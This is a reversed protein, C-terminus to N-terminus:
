IYFAKSLVKGELKDELRAAKDAFEDFPLHIYGAQYGRLDDSLKMERNEKM